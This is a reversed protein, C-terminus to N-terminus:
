QLTSDAGLPDTVVVSCLCPGAWCGVCARTVVVGFVDGILPALGLVSCPFNHCVDVGFAARTGFINSEHLSCSSAGIYFHSKLIM